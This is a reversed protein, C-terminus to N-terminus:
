DARLASAPDVKTAWRAPVYAAVLVVVLLVASATVLSVPDTPSVEYLLKAVLRSAVLAAVVGVVAGAGTVALAHQLVERRLREPEAGLAMRIGIERTQERVISAMLGSLGIAALLLAAGGFAVMLLASMRPQALPKALFEDMSKADWMSLQPEVAHLERKLAPLVSALPGTTRIAFNFQWFNAQRWPVYAELVPERLSRIRADRAVGVVTRNSATDLGAWYHVRKGIPNENPWFRKALAESIVVVQESTERDADTFGRGRVIPLGLTKFYEADGSEMPVYPDAGKEAASQGELEFRGIFVSPGLLPPIVTPTAAVVGPISRWRQLIDEGLAILKSTSDYQKSPWSVSLFALHANEYGLDISELRALSRALLAAGALMVLALTTQAAVLLHRVRRRARSDNGSRVDLRLTSAVDGRAALLAPAVGFILVALGTIGLATLVAAGDIHITDIRPLQAPALVLLTRLLAIATALGLLGGGAALMLSEALLQRVVHGYSAGLARRIALERARGATRLLLLNGVNVCVIMLLLGVAATLVILAPRVNGLMVTTLATSSAGTLHLEPVTSNVIRFVEAEAASATAGPALRAVAIVSLGGNGPSDPWPPIWYDAGTPYDLGPPAVGVITYTVQGYPEYIHRGVIDPNGGFEKKWTKYSIVMVPAAGALDDDPQLLRGLLPRVGLVSFFHGSALVRGLTLTRDGDILPDQSAGWHAFAGIDSMARSSQQLPKIEQLQMGVETGRVQYTSLQVVRGPDRVPLKDLLVARFVTFMAAAIGIGFGLILISAITFTPTRRLGRLAIRIDRAFDLM